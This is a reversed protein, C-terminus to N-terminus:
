SIFLKLTNNEYNLDNIKNNKNIEITRYVDSYIKCDYRFIHNKESIIERITDDISGWYTRIDDQFYCEIAVLYDDNIYELDYIKNKNANPNNYHNKLKHLESISNNCLFTGNPLNYEKTIQEFSEIKLLEITIKNNTDWSEFNKVKISLM